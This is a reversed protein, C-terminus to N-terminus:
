FPSLFRLYDLMDEIMRSFMSGVPLEGTKLYTYMHEEFVRDREVLLDKVLLLDDTYRNDCITGSYETRIGSAYGAASPNTVRKECWGREGFRSFFLSVDSVEVVISSEQLLMRMQEKCELSPPSAELKERVDDERSRSMSAAPAMRAVYYAKMQHLAAACAATPETM